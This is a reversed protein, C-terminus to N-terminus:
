LCAKNRISVSDIKIDEFYFTDLSKIKFINYWNIKSM